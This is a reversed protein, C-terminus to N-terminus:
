NKALPSSGSFKHSFSLSTILAIHSFCEQYNPSSLHCAQCHCKDQLPAQFSSRKPLALFRLQDVIFCIFFHLARCLAGGRDLGFSFGEGFSNALSNPGPARGQHRLRHSEFERARYPSVCKSGKPSRGTEDGPTMESGEFRRFKVTNLAKKPFRRSIQSFLALFM